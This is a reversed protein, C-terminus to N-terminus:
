NRCISYFIDWECNADATQLIELALANEYKEWKEIQPSDTPRATANSEVTLASIPQAISNNELTSASIVAPKESACSVLFTALLVPILYKTKM